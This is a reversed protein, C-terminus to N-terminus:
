CCWNRRSLGAPRRDGRRLGAPDVKETVKYYKAGERFFDLTAILNGGYRPSRRWDRSPHGRHHAEFAACRARKKAKTGRQGARRTMRIPRPQPIAQHFFERGDREAFTWECLGAGVVRFDELLRYGGVTDGARM